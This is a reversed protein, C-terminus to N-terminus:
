PRVLLSLCDGWKKVNGGEWHDTQAEVRLGAATALGAFAVANGVRGGDTAQEETPWGAHHIWVRGGVKLVRYCERLYSSVVPEDFHVFSDFSWVLDVTGKDLPLTMGNCVEFADRHEPYKQQCAKVCREVVDYGTYHCRGLLPGAWRGHGVGIEVVRDDQGVNLFTDFISQKWASYPVGAFTAMTDWEDGDKPWWYKHWFAKNSALDM